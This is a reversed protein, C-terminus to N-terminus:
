KGEARAVVFGSGDLVMSGDSDIHARRAGGLNPAPEGKRMLRLANRKEALLEYDVIADGNQPRTMLRVRGGHVVAYGRPGSMEVLGRAVTQWRGPGLERVKAM